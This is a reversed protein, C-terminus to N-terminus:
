LTSFTYGVFIRAEPTAWFDAGDDHRRALIAEIDADHVGVV